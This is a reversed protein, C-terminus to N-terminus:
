AYLQLTIEAIDIQIGTTSELMAEKARGLFALWVGGVPSEVRNGAALKLMVEKARGLYALWGGGVQLEEAFRLAEDCLWAVQM